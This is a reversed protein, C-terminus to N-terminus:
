ISKEKSELALVINEMHRIERDAKMTKQNYNERTIKESRDLYEHQQDTLTYLHTSQNLIKELDIRGEEVNDLENRLEKVDQKLKELEVSGQHYSTRSQQVKANWEDLQSKALIWKSKLNEVTEQNKRVFSVIDDYHDAKECPTRTVRRNEFSLAPFVLPYAASAAVADALTHRGLDDCILDFQLQVFPFMTRTGMDTANVVLYPRDKERLSIDLLDRYTTTGYLEDRFFKSLETTRTVDRRLLMQIMRAPDVIRTVIKNQIEKKLFKEKFNDFEKSTGHLAWYAATVSGGSVSSVFDVESMLSTPHSGGLRDQRPKPDVVTDRLATLAGYALSAARMGGGSFTTGIFTDPSRREVFRQLVEYRYENTTSRQNDDAAAGNHCTVSMLTVIAIAYRQVLTKSRTNM